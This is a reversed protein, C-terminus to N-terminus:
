VCLRYCVKINATINNAPGFQGLGPCIDLGIVSWQAVCAKEILEGDEGVFDGKDVGRNWELENALKLLERVVIVFLFDLAPNIQDRGAKGWKHEVRNALRVRVVEVVELNLLREREGLKLNIRVITFVRDSILAYIHNPRIAPVVGEQTVAKIADVVIIWRRIAKQSEREIDVLIQVSFHRGADM